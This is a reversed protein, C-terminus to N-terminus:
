VIVNIRAFRYQQSTVNRLLVICGESSSPQAELCVLLGPVTVFGIGAGKGTRLSYKGSTVQGITWRACLGITNVLSRSIEYADAIAPFASKPGKHLAEVSGACKKDAKRNQFDDKSPISILANDSPQGGSLCQFSVAVLANQHFNFLHRLVDLRKNDLSTMSDDSPRKRMPFTQSFILDNITRLLMKDRLVYFGDDEILVESKGVYDGFRCEGIKGTHVGLTVDQVGISSGFRKLVERCCRKWDIVLSRWDAGFPYCVGYKEYNTRKGPPRRFLYFKSIM